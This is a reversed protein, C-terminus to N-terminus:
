DDVRNGDKDYFYVGDEDWRISYGLGLKRKYEKFSKLIESDASADGHDSYKRETKIKVTEFEGDSYSKSVYEREETISLIYGVEIEIEYKYRDKKYSEKLYKVTRKLETLCAQQKAESLFAQDNEEALCCIWELVEIYDFEFRYTVGNKNKEKEFGFIIEAYEEDKLERNLRRMCRDFGGEDLMPYNFHSRNIYAALERYNKASLAKLLDVDVSRYNERKELSGHSYPESYESSVIRNYYNFDPTEYNQVTDGDYDTTIEMEFERTATKLDFPGYAYKEIETESEEGDRVSITTVELRYGDLEGKLYADILDQAPSNQTSIVQIPSFSATLLVGLIAVALVLSVIAPWRKRKKKPAEEAVSQPEEESCCPSETKHDDAEVATKEFAEEGIESEPECSPQDLAPELGMEASEAKEDATEVKTGCNMCFLFDEKIEAGCNKCNM